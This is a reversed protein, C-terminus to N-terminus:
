SDSSADSGGLTQARLARAQNESINDYRVGLWDLTRRAPEGPLNEARLHVNGDEVDQSYPGEGHDVGNSFYITDGLKFAKDKGANAANAIAIAVPHGRWLGEFPGLDTKDAQATWAELSRDAFDPVNLSYNWSAAMRGYFQPTKSLLSNWGRVSLGRVTDTLESELKQFAEDLNDWGVELELM